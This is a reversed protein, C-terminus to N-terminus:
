IKFLNYNCLNIAKELEKKKMWYKKSYEDASINFKSERCLPCRHSIKFWKELCEEHYIHRCNTIIKDKDEIECFCISCDM